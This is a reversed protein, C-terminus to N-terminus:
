DAWHRRHLKARALSPIKQHNIPNVQKWITTGVVAILFDVKPQSANARSLKRQFPIWGSDLADLSYLLVSEVRLAISAILDSM